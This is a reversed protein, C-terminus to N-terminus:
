ATGPLWESIKCIRSERASGRHLSEERSSLGITEGVCSISPLHAISLNYLYAIIEGIKIEKLIRHVVRSLSYRPKISLSILIVLRTLNMEERCRKRVWLSYFSPSKQSCINTSATMGGMNIGKTFIPFKQKQAIELYIIIIPPPFIQSSLNIVIKMNDSQDREQEAVNESCVTPPASQSSKQVSFQALPGIDRVLICSESRLFAASWPVQYARGIM